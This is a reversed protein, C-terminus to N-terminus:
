SLEALLLDEVFGMVLSGTVLGDPFLEALVRGVSLYNECKIM